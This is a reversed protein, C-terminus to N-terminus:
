IAAGEQLINQKRIKKLRRRWFCDEWNRIGRWFRGLLTGSEKFELPLNGQLFMFNKINFLQIFLYTLLYILFRYFYIFLYIFLIFIFLLYIFLYILWPFYYLSSSLWYFTFSLWLVLVLFIFIFIFWYVFASGWSGHLDHLDYLFICDHLCAM